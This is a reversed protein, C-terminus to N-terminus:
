SCLPLLRCLRLHMYADAGAKHHNKLLLAAGPVYSIVLDRLSTPSKWDKHECGKRRRAWDAIDPDMTDIGNHVVHAWQDKLSHLGSRNLEEYILGADFPLNHSVVRAGRACKELVDGVMTQLATELPLGSANAMEQTIGHKEIANPTITFGDPKVLIEQGGEDHSITSFAWGVQIIRLSSIAEGTNRTRLGFQDPWWGPLSGKPVLDHTEVDIAIMDDCALLRSM